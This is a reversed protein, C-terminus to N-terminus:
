IVRILFILINLYHSFNSRKFIGTQEYENEKEKKVKQEIEEDINEKTFSSTSTKEIIHYKKKTQDYFSGSKSIPGTIDCTSIMM